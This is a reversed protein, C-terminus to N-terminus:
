ADSGMVLQNRRRLFAGLAENQLSLEKAEEKALEAAHQIQVECFCWQMESFRVFPAVHSIFGINSALKLLPPATRLGRLRETV